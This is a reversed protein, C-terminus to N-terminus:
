KKDRGIGFCTACYGLALLLGILLLSGLANQEIVATLERLAAVLAVLFTMVVLKLQPVEIKLQLGPGGKKRASQRM